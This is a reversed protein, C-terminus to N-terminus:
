KVELRATKELFGEVSYTVKGAFHRVTFTGRAAKVNKVMVPNSAQKDFLKSLFSKDNGRGLLKLEEDLLPLIGVRRKTILDIM